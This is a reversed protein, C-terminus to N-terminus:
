DEDNEFFLDYYECFVTCLEKYLMELTHVNENKQKKLNIKEKLLKKKVRVKELNYLIKHRKLYLSLENYMFEGIQNSYTINGNEDRHLCDYYEDTCPDIFGKNGIINENETNGVWKNSKSINCYPCSYLLNDYTFELHKFKDKPAFHEVHYSKYGGSYKDHDDCYACKHEFDKVLRKKNSSNTMWKEGTYSRVPKKEKIRGM